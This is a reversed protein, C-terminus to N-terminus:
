DLESQASYLKVEQIISILELRYPHKSLISFVMADSPSLPCSAPPDAM